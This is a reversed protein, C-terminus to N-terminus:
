RAFAITRGLPRHYQGARDADNTQTMAQQAHAALRMWTAKGARQSHRLNGLLQRDGRVPDVVPNVVAGDGDDPVARRLEVQEGVFRPCYGQELLQLRALELLQTKLLPIVM